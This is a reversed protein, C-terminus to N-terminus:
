RLCLRIKPNASEERAEMAEQFRGGEGEEERV